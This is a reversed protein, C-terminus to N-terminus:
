MKLNDLTVGYFKALEMAQSVKLNRPDKEWKGYTVLTVGLQRGAEEQSINKRARLEKISFKEVDKKIHIRKIKKEM